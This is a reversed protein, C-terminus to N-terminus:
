PLTHATGMFPFGSFGSAPFGPHTSPPSQEPYAFEKLLYCKLSFELILLAQCHLSAIALDEKASLLATFSTGRVATICPQLDKLLRCSVPSSSIAEPSPTCHCSSSRGNTCGSGQCYCGSVEPALEPFASCTHQTVRVAGLCSHPWYSLWWSQASGLSGLQASGKALKGM